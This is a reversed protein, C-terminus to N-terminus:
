RQPYYVAWCAVGTSAALAALVAVFVWQLAASPHSDIDITYLLTDLSINGRGGDGWESGWSNQITWHPAPHSGWGVVVIAHNRHSHETQISGPLPGHALLKRQIHRPDTTAMPRLLMGLRHEWRLDCPLGYAQESADIDGLGYRALAAAEKLSMGDDCGRGTCDFLRYPSPIFDQQENLCLRMSMATAVAFAACSGCDGQMLARHFIRCSSNPPILTYEDPIAMLVPLLGFM